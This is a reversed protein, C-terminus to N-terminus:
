LKKIEEMTLGTITAIKNTEIGLDKMIKAHQIKTETKGKEIGEILGEARGEAKGEQMATNIVDNQIM